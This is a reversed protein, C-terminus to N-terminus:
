TPTDDVPEKSKWTEVGDVGKTAPVKEQGCEREHSKGHEEGAEAEPNGGLRCRVNGADGQSGVEKADDIRRALAGNREGIRGFCVRQVDAGDAHRQCRGGSPEEVKDQGDGPRGQKVGELWLTGKAPVRGPVNDAEEGNQEENRLGLLTRQLLEVGYEAYGQPGMSPVTQALDRVEEVAPHQEVLVSDLGLDRNLLHLIIVPCKRPFRFM